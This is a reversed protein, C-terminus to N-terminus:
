SAFPVHSVVQFYDSSVLVRATNGREQAQSLNYYSVRDLGDSQCRMKDCIAGNAWRAAMYQRTTGAPVPWPPEPITDNGKTNLEGISAL